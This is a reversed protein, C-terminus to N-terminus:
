KAKPSLMRKLKEGVSAFDSGADDRPTDFDRKDRKDPTPKKEPTIDKRKASTIKPSSAFTLTAQKKGGTTARTGQTSNKNPKKKTPKGRTDPVDVHDHDNNANLISQVKKLLDPSKSSDPNLCHEILEQAVASAEEVNNATSPAEPTARQRRRDPKSCQYSRHGFQNCNYCKPGSDKHPCNFKMHGDEGCDYCKPSPKSPCEELTHEVSHCYKCFLDPQGDYYLTVEIEVLEKPDLPSPINMMSYRPKESVIASVYCYRNGTMLHHFQNRSGQDKSKHRYIPSALAAFSSVWSAIDEELVSQPIGHISLRTNSKSQTAISYDAMKFSRGKLAMSDTALVFGKATISALNVIWHPQKKINMFQVGLIDAPQIKVTNENVAQLLATAVECESARISRHSDIQIWLNVNKVRDARDTDGHDSNIGNGITATTSAAM